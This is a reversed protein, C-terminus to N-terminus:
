AQGFRGRGGGLGTDHEISDAALNEKFAIGVLAAGDGASLFQDARQDTNFASREVFRGTDGGEIGGGLGVFHIELFSFM